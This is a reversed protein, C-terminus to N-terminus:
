PVFPVTDAFTFPVSTVDAVSPLVIARLKAPLGVVFAVYVTFYVYVGVPPDAVFTHSRCVAPLPDVSFQVGFTVSKALAIV